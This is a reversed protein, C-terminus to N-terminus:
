KNINEKIIQCCGGKKKKEAVEENKVESLVLKGKTPKRVLTAKHYYIEMTLSNFIEEINRGTLASVELYLGKYKEALERAEQNSVERKDLDIKNGVLIITISKESFRNVEEFWKTALDFSERKNVDFVIVAGDSTRYFMPALAHYKEEGATDQQTLLFSCVWINISFTMGNM